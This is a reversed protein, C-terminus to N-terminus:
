DYEPEPPELGLQAMLAPLSINRLSALQTLHQLRTVDLQEAQQTLARLEQQEQRSLKTRRRKQRLTNYRQQLEAPLSQNILRMLESEQASLRHVSDTHGSFAQPLERQLAPDAAMAALEGAQNQQRETQKRVRQALRELLRVQELLPLQGIAAELNELAVTNM